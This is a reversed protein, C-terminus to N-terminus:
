NEKINLYKPWNSFVEVPKFNRLRDHTLYFRTRAMSGIFPVDEILMDRM